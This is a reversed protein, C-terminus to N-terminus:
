HHRPLPGHARRHRTPLYDILLMGGFRSTCVADDPESAVRDVVRQVIERIAGVPDDGLAAGAQRGREAVDDHLAPTAAQLGATYYDLPTRLTVAAPMTDLYQEVTVLARSTHGVLERVNWVGLGPATWADDPVALVADLFGASAESFAYRVDTMTSGGHHLVSRRALRLRVARLLRRVDRPDQRDLRASRADLHPPPGPDRWGRVRPVRGVHRSLGERVRGGRVPHRGDRTFHRVRNRHTHGAFYGLISPRRAIVDVLEESDDPNIGFYTLSRKASDPSWPHHHGMVMVPRDSDAALADVWALQDKTIRGTTEFPIVTDLLLVRVGPLVIERDGMEYTQGRYGDHNGRVTHLRDGFAGGYYARFAAYEEDHGDGTLDGKVIVAAPEIATIEAIAGSNMMEPYPPEGPEASFTPGIAFADDIGCETEGFHVDNVTAFRCLLQGGPRALTRVEEGMLNHATDPALGDFRYVESGDHFVVEDDAVTTLEAAMMGVLPPRAAGRRTPGVLSRLVAVRSHARHVGRRTCRTAAM